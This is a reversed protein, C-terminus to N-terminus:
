LSLWTRSVELHGVQTKWTAFVYQMYQYTGVGGTGELPHPVHLFSTSRSISIIHVKFFFKSTPHSRTKDCFSRLSTFQLRAIQSEVKETPFSSM